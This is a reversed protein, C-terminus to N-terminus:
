AAQNRRELLKLVEPSAKARLYLNESELQSIKVLLESIKLKLVNVDQRVAYMLHSKVLDMAQEIKSDIATAKGGINTDKAVKNTTLLNAVRRYADDVEEKNFNVGNKDFQLVDQFKKEFFLECNKLASSSKLYQNVFKENDAINMDIFQPTNDVYDLCTWRGRSFSNSNQSDSSLSKSKEERSRMSASSIPATTAATSMQGFTSTTGHEEADRSDESYSPTENDTFRSNEDTHSEDLDDASEDGFDPRTLCVDTIQFSSQVKKRSHHLSSSNRLTSPFPAIHVTEDLIDAESLRITESTTRHIVNLKKKNAIGSSM